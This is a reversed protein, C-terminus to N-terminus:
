DNNLLDKVNESEYVVKGNEDTVRLEYRDSSETLFIHDFAYDDEKEDAMEFYADELDDVELLNDKEEETLSFGKVGTGRFYLGIKYKMLYTIKKETTIKKAYREQYQKM